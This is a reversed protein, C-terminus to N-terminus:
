AYKRLKLGAVGLGLIGLLVAAPVPVVSVHFADPSSPNPPVGDMYAKVYFGIDTINSLDLGGGPKAATLYASGGYGDLPVYSSTTEVAAGLEKYFLQVYWRSNNDNQFYATVGDYNLGTLGPDGTYSIKAEVWPTLDFNEFSAVFGVEGSMDAAGYLAGGPGFVKNSPGDYISLSGTTDPPGSINMYTKFGLATSKDLEYYMAADAQVAFLGIVLTFLLIRKM